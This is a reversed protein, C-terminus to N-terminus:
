TEEKVVDGLTYCGFPDVVSKIFMCVYL